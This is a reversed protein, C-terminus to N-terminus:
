SNPVYVGSALLDGPKPVTATFGSGCAPLCVPEVCCTEIACVTDPPCDGQGGFCRVLGTCISDIGCVGTGDPAMWCYCDPGAGPCETLETVGCIFPTECSTFEECPGWAALVALLDGVGVMGDGDIDEPCPDFCTGVCRCLNVTWRVVDALPEVFDGGTHGPAYWVHADPRWASFLFGHDWLGDSENGPVLMAHDCYNAFLDPIGESVCETGYTGPYTASSYTDGFVPNYGPGMIRGDLWNIATPLCWQGLIVRGGNDVYDALVDGMAFSDAYAFNVWTLVCDYELLLSLPPTDVRADFYDVPVGGLAAAVENRFVPNDDETPCYLLGGPGRDASIVHGAFVVPRMEGANTMQLDPPGALGAAGVSILAGSALVIASLFGFTGKKM